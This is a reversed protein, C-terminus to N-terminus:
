RRYAASARRARSIKEMKMYYGAQKEVEEMDSVRIKNDVLKFKTNQLLERVPTNGEGKSFGVM